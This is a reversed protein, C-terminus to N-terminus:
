IKNSEKKIFDIINKPMTNSSKDIYNDLLGGETKIGYIEVEPNVRQKLKLMNITRYSEPNLPDVKVLREIYNDQDSVFVYFSKALHNKREEPTMSWKKLLVKSDTNNIIKGDIISTIKNKQEDTFEGDLEKVLDYNNLITPNLQLVTIKQQTNLNNKMDIFDSINVSGRVYKTIFNNKQKDTLDTSLTSFAKSTLDGQSIIKDIVASKQDPTIIDSFKSYNRWNPNEIFATTQTNLKIKKHIPNFDTAAKLMKDTVWSPPNNHSADQADWWTMERGEGDIKWQLAYKYDKPNSKPNMKKNIFFYFNSHKSYSDFHTNLNDSGSTGAICWKSGAGYKCSAEVTFPVYIVATDDEYIKKAQKAVNKETEKSIAEDVVAQLDSLKKYSNIDKNKIRQLQKHFDQVVKVIIDATPIQEDQNQGLSTKIMWDLYKNNGSPDVNSLMDILEVHEEGYKNIADEKRGELIITSELIQKLKFKM